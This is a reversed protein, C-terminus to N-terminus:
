HVQRQQTSCKNALLFRPEAATSDLIRQAAHEGIAPGHKFGHGSGGGVIWVNDLAPHRDVILDGNSTNEYQCVEAGILPAGALLPFRRALFARAAEIGEPSPAREAADPDIAGGHRDHAIKFGRGEIDPIGYYDRDYDLWVPLHEIMFRPDAAPTGFYYVEQRTPFIRPGLLDPLVKGLWPGCAFVHQRARIAAGSAAVVGDLRGSGRVAAIEARLLPVGERQLELALRQVARRALLAGADPELIAWIDPPLQIQPYRATLAAPDLREHAIALEALVALSQAGSVSDPRQLWLVGSSRLLEGCGLALLTQRWQALARMAYRAYIEDPGYAARIVRTEGASSARAHAPGHADILIVKQGARHLHWATWVGFVGAGVVAVDYRSDSAQM